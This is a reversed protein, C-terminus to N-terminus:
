SAVGLERARGDIWEAVNTTLEPQARVRRDLNRRVAPPMRSLMAYHTSTCRDLMARHPELAEALAAPVETGEPVSRVVDAVVLTALTMRLVDESLDPRVRWPIATAFAGAPAGQVQSLGRELRAVLDATEHASLTPRLSAGGCGALATPAVALAAGSAMAGRSLFTRRDM